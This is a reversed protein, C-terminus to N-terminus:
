RVFFARYHIDFTTPENCWDMSLIIDFGLRTVNAAVVNQNSDASVLNVTPVGDMPKEFTVSYRNAFVTSSDFVERGTCIDIRSFETM